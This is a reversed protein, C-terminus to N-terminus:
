MQVSTECHIDAIHRNQQREKNPSDAIEGNVKGDWAIDIQQTNMTNPSRTSCRNTETRNNCQM